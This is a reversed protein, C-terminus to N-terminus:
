RSCASADNATKADRVCTIRTGPWKESKCLKEISTALSRALSPDGGSTLTAQNKAAARCAAPDGPRPKPAPPPAAPLSACPELDDAASADLVCKIRELSWRDTKCSTAVPKALEARLKADGPAYLRAQHEAVTTCLTAVQDPAPATATTPAPPPSAATASVPPAPSTSTSAAVEPTAPTTAGAASAGRPRAKLYAIAKALRAEHESRLEAQLQEMTKQSGVAADPPVDPTPPIDASCPERAVIRGYDWCMGFAPGHIAAGDFGDFQYQVWEDDLTSGFFTKVIQRREDLPRLVEVTHWAPDDARANLRVSDVMEGASMRLFMFGVDKARTSRIDASSRSYVTMPGHAKRNVYTASTITTTGQTGKVARVRYVVPGDFAGDVCAGELLTVESEYAPAYYAALPAEFEPDLECPIPTGREFFQGPAQRYAAEAERLQQLFPQYMPLLTPLGSRAREDKAAIAQEHKPRALPGCGVIGIAVVLLPRARFM